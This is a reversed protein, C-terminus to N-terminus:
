GYSHGVLVIPGKITTLISRLYDSDPTLDRLPNSPALVPYGLKELSSVEANWGSADAWGGHVLVITPKSTATTRAHGSSALVAAVSVAALLSIALTALTRRHSALVATSM